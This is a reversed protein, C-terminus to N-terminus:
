GLVMSRLGKMILRLDVPLIVSHLVVDDGGQKEQFYLAPSLKKMPGYYGCAFCVNPLSEYEVKQVRGDMKINSVLPKNMYVM